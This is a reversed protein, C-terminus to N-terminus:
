SAEPTHIPRESQPLYNWKLKRRLLEFYSFGEPHLMTFTQSSIKIRLIDGVRVDFNVQADFSAVASRTENVEIDVISQSSIILPRNSLTHPAVPVILMSRVAPHLIPGGAAMAYATSGTSSSVLVGDARQVAIPEGDVYVTYEVMGLARGHTLGIDNVAVESCVTEGDRMVRGQLMPREDRVYHGALMASLTTEMEEHVIDTIFGLRGANVGIVPVDYPALLRGAGLMTGDGGLVVAVEAMKGLEAADAMEFPCGNPFFMELARDLIPTAGSQVIVEILKRFIARVNEQPKAFVAVKSFHPM